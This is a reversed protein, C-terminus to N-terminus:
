ELIFLNTREGSGVAIDIPKRISEWNDVYGVQLMGTSTKEMVIKLQSNVDFINKGPNFSGKVTEATAPRSTLFHSYASPNRFHKKHCHGCSESGAFKQGNSSYNGVSQKRPKSSYVRLSMSGQWSLAVYSSEQYGQYAKRLEDYFFKVASAASRLTPASSICNTLRNLYLHGITRQDEAYEKRRRAEATAIEGCLVINNV